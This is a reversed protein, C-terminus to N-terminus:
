LFEKLHNSFEPKIVKSNENEEPLIYEETDLQSSTISDLVIEEEETILIPYPQSLQTGINGTPDKDLFRIPCDAIQTYTYQGLMYGVTAGTITKPLKPFTKAVKSSPIFNKTMGYYVLASSVISLPLSLTYFAVQNCERLINFEKDSFHRTTALIEKFRETLLANQQQIQRM